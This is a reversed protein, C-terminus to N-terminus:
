FTTQTGRAKANFSEGSEGCSQDDTSENSCARGIDCRVPAVVGSVRGSPDCDPLPPEGAKAADAECNGHTQVELTSPPGPRRESSESVREQGGEDRAPRQASDKSWLQHHTTTSVEGVLPEPHMVRTLNSLTDRHWENLAALVTEQPECQNPAFTPPWRSARTRDRASRHDHPSDNAGEVLTPQEPLM